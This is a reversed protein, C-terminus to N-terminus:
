EGSRRFCFLDPRAHYDLITFYYTGVSDAM